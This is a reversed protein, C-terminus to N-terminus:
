EKKGKDSTAEVKVQQLRGSDLASAVQQIKLANEDLTVQTEGELHVSKPNIVDVYKMGGPVARLMRQHTCGCAKAGACYVSHYLTFLFVEKHPNKITVTAM